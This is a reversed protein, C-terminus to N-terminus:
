QTALPEPKGETPVNEPCVPPVPESIEPQTLCAVAAAAFTMWFGNIRGHLVEDICNQQLALTFFIEVREAIPSFGLKLRKEHMRAPFPYRDVIHGLYQYGNRPGSRM